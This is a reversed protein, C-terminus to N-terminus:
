PSFRRSSASGPERSCGPEAPRRARSGPDGPRPPPALGELDFRQRNGNRSTRQRAGLTPYRPEWQERPIEPPPPAPRSGARRWPLRSRAEPREALADRARRQLQPREDSNLGGRGRSVPADGGRASERILGVPQSSQM